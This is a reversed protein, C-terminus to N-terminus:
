GREGGALAEFPVKRLDKTESPVPVRGSGSCERCWKGGIATEILGIGKCRPCLKSRPKTM